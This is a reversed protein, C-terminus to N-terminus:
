LTEDDVIRFDTQAENLDALYLPDAAAQQMLRVKTAREDTIDEVVIIVRKQQFSAPLDLIVQQDNVRVIKKWIM